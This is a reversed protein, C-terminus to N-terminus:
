AAAGSLAAPSLQQLHRALLLLGALYLWSHTCAAHESHDLMNCCQRPLM